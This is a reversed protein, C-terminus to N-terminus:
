PACRECLCDQYEHLGFMHCCTCYKLAREAAKDVAAWWDRNEKTDLNRKLKGKSV